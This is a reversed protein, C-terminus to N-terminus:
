VHTDTDTQRFRRRVRSRKRNTLTKTSNLCKQASPLEAIIYIKEIYM